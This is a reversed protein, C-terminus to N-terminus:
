GEEGIALTTLNPGCGHNPNLHCTYDWGETHACTCTQWVHATNTYGGTGGAVEDLQASSLEEDTGTPKQPLAIVMENEAEEVVKINIPGIDIGFAAKIAAKPDEILKERFVEDKWALEIISQEVAHKPYSKNESM